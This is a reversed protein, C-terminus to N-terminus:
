VKDVYDRDKILTVTQTKADWDVECGLAEAVARVPLFTRNDKIFAATDMEKKNGNVEIIKSGIQLKIVDHQMVLDTVAWKENIPYNLPMYCIGGKGWSEGWSNQIILRDKTYGIVAVAHYGLVKEGPKPLPLDGTCNCFSEYIQFCILVPGNFYIANKVEEITNIAAYTKIRQPLAAKYVTENFLKKQAPYNWIGPMLEEECVGYEQLQKLAQRPIMGEGQYDDDARNGYIFNASYQTYTNRGQQEREKREQYEKITSLSYAVCAGVSGQNKIKTLPPIYEEPYIGMPIVKAVPYDRYDHPSPIAGFTYTPKPM